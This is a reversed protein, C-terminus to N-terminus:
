IFGYEIAMVIDEILKDEGEPDYQLKLDNGLIRAIGQWFFANFGGRLEKVVEYSTRGIERDILKVLIIGQTINLKRMEREFEKILEKEAVELYEKQEKKSSLKVLTTDLSQLRRNAIIAYPYAKKVNHVERRYKRSRLYNYKNIDYINLEPIIMMPLTDSRYVLPRNFSQDNNDVENQASSPTCFIAIM